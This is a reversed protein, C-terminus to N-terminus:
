SLYPQSWSLWQSSVGFASIRPMERKLDTAILSGFLIMGGWIITARMVTFQRLRALFDESFVFNQPQNIM